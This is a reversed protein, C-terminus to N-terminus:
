NMFEKTATERRCSFNLWGKGCEVQTGDYHLWACQEQNAPVGDIWFGDLLM